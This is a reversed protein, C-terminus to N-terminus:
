EDSDDKVIRKKKLWNKVSRGAQSPLKENPLSITNETIKTIAKYLEQGCYACVTPPENVSHKCSPCFHEITPRMAAEFLGGVQGAEFYASDNKRIMTQRTVSGERVMKLLDPPRLPGLDGSEEDRKIFWEAM